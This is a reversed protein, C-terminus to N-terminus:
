KYSILKLLVTLKQDGKASISVLVFSDCEILLPSQFRVRDYYFINFFVFCM